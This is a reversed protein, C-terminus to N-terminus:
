LGGGPYASGPIMQAPSPGRGGGGRGGRGPLQFDPNSNLLIDQQQPLPRRNPMPAHGPGGNWRPNVGRQSVSTFNSKDSEAPSRAGSQLDEYSSNGDLRVVPQLPRLNSASGNNASYGPALAAPVPSPATIRPEAFQPDVDEYYNDGSNARRHGIQGPLEAPRSLPSSRGEGQWAQRPPVYPEDASYRSADSDVTQRQLRQQQLGVMGAVDGDSERINGFQGFGQPATSPSGTSADMEVAQGVIGSDLGPL